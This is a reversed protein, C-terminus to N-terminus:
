CGGGPESLGAWRHQLADDANIRQAPDYTLLRALLDLGAETLTAGSGFASSFKQRLVCPMQKLVVQPRLLLTALPRPLLLLFLLASPPRRAPTCASCAPLPQAWCHESCWEMVM